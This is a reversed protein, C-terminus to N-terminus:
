TTSHLGACSLREDSERSPKEEQWHGDHHGHDDDNDHCQRRHYRQQERKGAKQEHQELAV